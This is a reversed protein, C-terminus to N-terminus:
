SSAVRSREGAPLVNTFCLRLALRWLYILQLGYFGSNFENVGLTGHASENRLNAGFHQGILGKLEFVLNEGLVSTLKKELSDNNLMVNLDYHNQTKM